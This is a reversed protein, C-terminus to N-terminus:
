VDAIMTLTLEAITFYGAASTYYDTISQYDGESSTHPKGYGSTYVPNVVGTVGQFADTLETHSFKGNFLINSIYDNAAAILASEVDSQLYQGNYYVTYNLKLDDAEESIVSIYTGPFKVQNIYSELASIELAELPELTGSNDKATKFVIMYNVTELAVQKVIKKTEDIIAYKWIGGIFELSDGYQFAKIKDIWWLLTGAQNLAFVGEIYTKFSDFLNKITKNAFAVIWLILRWVATSSESNLDDLETFDGGEKADILDQYIEQTTQDDFITAM